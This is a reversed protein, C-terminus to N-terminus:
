EKIQTTGAQEISAQNQRERLRRLFEKLDKKNTGIIPPDQEARKSKTDELVFQLGVGDMGWRIVRAYVSIPHDTNPKEGEKEQLTMLVLTGPYWREETILYLGTTSIDRVRHARPADNNWYYASLNLPQERQAERPDPTLMRQLWNNPAHFKRIPAVSVRPMPAFARLAESQKGADWRQAPRLKGNKEEQCLEQMLAEIKHNYLTIQQLNEVMEEASCILLQDGTQTQSSEVSRLPLALVSSAPQVLTPFFPTHEVTGTIRCDEDLYILDHPLFLNTEPIPRYPAIWLSEGSQLRLTSIRYALDSSSLDAVEVELSLFCERSQNYACQKRAEM